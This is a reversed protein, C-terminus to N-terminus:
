DAQHAPETGAASERADKERQFERLAEVFHDREYQLTVRAAHAWTENLKVASQPDAM